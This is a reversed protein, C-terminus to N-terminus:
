RKQVSFACPVASADLYLQQWTSPEDSLDSSLFYVYCQSPLFVTKWFSIRVPHHTPLSSLPFLVQTVRPPILYIFKFKVQLNSSTSNLLKTWLPMFTFLKCLNFLSDNGTKCVWRKQIKIDNKIKRLFNIM